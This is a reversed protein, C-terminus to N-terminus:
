ATEKMRLAADRGKFYGDMQWRLQRFLDGLGEPPRWWKDHMSKVGGDYDARNPWGSLSWRYDLQEYPMNGGNRHVYNLLAEEPFVTEFRHPLALVSEYHAFLEASPAMVWFGGNAWHGGFSEESRLPPYHHDQWVGPSGAFAYSAPQPGEDPRTANPLDLTRKVAAAPDLFVGDIPAFIVTDIDLFCVKDFQTWAAIRLKTMVDNFRQETEIWDASLREVEIVQAGDAVLRMRKSQPVDATVAVVFPVDGQSRTEPAHLLQYTLLRAGVFYVDDDDPKSLDVTTSSLLTVFAYRPRAGHEEAPVDIPAVLGPKSDPNSFPNPLAHSSRYFLYCFVVAFLGTLFFARQRTSALAM